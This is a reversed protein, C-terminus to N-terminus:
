KGVRRYEGTSHRQYQLRLEPIRKLYADFLNEPDLIRQPQDKRFADRVRVVHEYYEPHRFIEQSLNWNLFGTGLQHNAYLSPTPNLVLIKENKTETPVSQVRLADYVVAVKGYYALYGISVISVIIIWLNIEAFKRRRIMLLFHSVYFSIVPILTIFSQPRIGKSYFIQIFAFVMWFFTAQVLQSQYKTFRAERNLIVFSVVLYLAPVAALIWLSKADIFSWTSFSLNPLYYFDWLSDLGDRLYFISILMLHPVLFGIVMLLYKRLELRTFIALIVIAGLLYISFSFSFLSAFSIYLGLNFISEDRQERFEIEKFLNNLALLLFGAALLEPTLAMNDYSFAFFIVYLLSPIFTNESFAKKNIFIIGLFVAQTLIVFLAFSHRAVLSRGFIFDFISDCWAALPATQDVVDIYMAHGERMKEGILINNLEPFTLGPGALLLPLYVAMTIVLLGLVRYPDNIRFYQLM